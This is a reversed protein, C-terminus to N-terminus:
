PNETSDPTLPKLTTTGPKDGRGALRGVDALSFEHLKWRSYQAARPMSPFRWHRLEIERMSVLNQHTQQQTKEIAGADTDTERQIETM